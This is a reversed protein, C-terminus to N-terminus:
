LKTSGKVHCIFHTIDFNVSEPGRGGYTKYLIFVEPTFILGTNLFIM